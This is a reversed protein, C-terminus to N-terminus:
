YLLAGGFYNSESAIPCLSLLLKQQRQFDEAVQKTEGGGESAEWGRHYILADRVALKLCM